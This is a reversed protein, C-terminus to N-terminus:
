APQTNTTVPRGPTGFPPEAAAPEPAGTIAGSLAQAPVDPQGAYREAVRVEGPTLVQSAILMSYAQAREFMGPRIYEDRNLEIGTGHPLLWGSLAAM